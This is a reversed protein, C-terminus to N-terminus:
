IGRTNILLESYIIINTFCFFSLISNLIQLIIVFLIENINGIPSIPNQKPTNNNSRLM